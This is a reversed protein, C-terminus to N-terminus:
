APTRGRRGPRPHDPDAEPGPLDGSGQSWHNVWGCVGCAYRGGLGSVQAGCGRCETTTIEAGGEDM